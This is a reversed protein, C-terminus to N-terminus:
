TVMPPMFPVVQTCITLATSSIAPVRSIVKRTSSFNLKLRESRSPAAASFLPLPAAKRSGPRFYPTVACWALDVEDRRPM